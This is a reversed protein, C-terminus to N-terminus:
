VGNREEIAAVIATVRPEARLGDFVPRMSLWALDLARAASAKELWDVAPLTEGLGAHVQAVLSPSVYRENSLTLLEGLAQRARDVNGARAFAYGLAATKEPSPSLQIAMEIERVAADYRAMEVLTLGLFHRAIGWGADLALSDRLDREAEAFQHKFYSLLGVSVRIPMSLPDADVARQLEESAQDFRRLPVLYNIAYWHHAAPDDPNVKIARRYLAEADRWAWDYVAAICASTVYPSSLNPAIGSAREAAARAKPMIEHPSSAGYLGLTAYAEALGAHAEAYAPDREVAALFYEVSKLLATETRRNWYHRGKLYMMYSELDRSRAVREFETDGERGNRLQIGLARVAATAIEEQVKFIDHLDRDFRQSWLQGGDVADILQPVVRVKNDGVRVSGRLVTAVNLLSGVQRVDDVAGRFKFASGRAVVRLEPVRTLADIIEEALGDCFYDLSRGPSLDMFPLVAISRERGTRAAPQVVAADSYGTARALLREMVGASRPRQAPAADTADDIACVFAMPLDPRADRLLKRRSKVHADRVEQLSGGAVPFEGSVLYYLLVGLSYLDSQESPPAGQLVEPALYIPTGATRSPPDSGLSRLAGAGFDMLVIRGGAERMVNQAKVDCHVFGAQHVAALARCLELGLLIAEQASFNGQKERIQKLTQGKVFEMWFGVRGDFRDVGYITVVNPHHIQALLLAEEVRNETAAPVDTLLKLAVERELRPEWARYVTGFAGHGVRELIELPGWSLPDTSIAAGSPSPLADPATPLDSVASGTPAAGDREERLGRLFERFVALIGREEPTVASINIGAGEPELSDTGGPFRHEDDPPQSM